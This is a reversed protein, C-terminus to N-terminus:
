PRLTRRKLTEARVLATEIQRVLVPHHVGFSVLAARADALALVIQELWDHTHKEM